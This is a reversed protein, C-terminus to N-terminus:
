PAAGAETVPCRLFPPGDASHEGMRRGCKPCLSDVTLARVDRGYWQERAQVALDFAALCQALYEALIFDPTNSGNERSERNILKELEVRFHLASM